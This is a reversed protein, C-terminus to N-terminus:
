AAPTAAPGSPTAGLSDTRPSVTRNSLKTATLSTDNSRCSPPVSATTPSDPDPLDTDANDTIRSISIPVRATISLPSTSNRWSSPCTTSRSCSGSGCIRSMRPSRMEIIKWSGSVLRFGTYVTPLWIPSASRRCRPMFRAWARVRVSSISSRTRIGSALLRISWYGCSIDPPIRWRTIIAM